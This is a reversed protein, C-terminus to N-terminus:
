DEGIVQQTLNIRNFLKLLAYMIFISPILLWLIRISDQFFYELFPIKDGFNTILVALGNNLFHAFMPIYISNSRLMLFGLYVGLLTVPILRFPDLHLIGFLLASIILATSFGSKRFASLIYGRFMTEECIGPLVALLLLTNLLNGPEATLLEQMRELYSQSIPFVLNILEGLSVAIVIMPIAMLATLLFNVPETRNLGITSKINSRSIRLLLITPLLIIFIQTKILGSSIDASQWAAGQYFLALLILLFFLFAIQPSLVNKKDKGWFKLSKEEATRFLVSEKNFLKLSFLIAVIDLAVTSGIVILFKFLDFNGMMIEKFLLSFNIIPILAFGVTLEFGPLMSIMALMMGGFMIPMQYSQAEKINRAYTSISLMVAAMLTVLPLLAILILGFNSL